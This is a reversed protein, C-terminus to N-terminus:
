KSEPAEQRQGSINETNQSEKTPDKGYKELEEFWVQSPSWLGIPSLQYLKPHTYRGMLTQSFDKDVVEDYWIFENTGM